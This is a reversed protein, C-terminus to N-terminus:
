LPLDHLQDEPATWTEDGDDAHAVENAQGTGAEGGSAGGTPNHQSLTDHLAAVSDDIHFALAMAGRASGPTLLDGPSVVAGGASALGSPNRGASLKSDLATDADAPTDSDDLALTTLSPRKAAGKGRSPSSQQTSDSHLSYAARRGASMRFPQPHAGGMVAALSQLAARAQSAEAKVAGEQLALVAQAHKPNATMAYSALGTRAKIVEWTLMLLRDKSCRESIPTKASYKRVRSIATKHRPVDKILCFGKASQEPSLTYKTNLPLRHEYTQTFPPNLKANVERIGTCCAGCTLIYVFRALLASAVARVVVFLLLGGALSLFLVFMPFVNQRLVKPALGIPDLHEVSAVAAQYRDQVGVGGADGLLVPDSEVTADDGYFWIAFASHAMLAFPMINFALQAMSANLPPPQAYFTSLLFVDVLYTTLLSVAAVPLLLPIGSSYLLTVVVTNMVHPVRSEVEFEPAKYFDNLERQLIASKSCCRRKCPYVCCYKGLPLAHPAAINIIMTLTVAAGATSYWGPSFSSYAGRLVGLPLSEAGPIRAHVLLVILGTNLFLALFLSTHLEQKTARWLVSKLSTNILVVGAAAVFILVQALVFSSALEQCTAEQEVATRFDSWSTDESMLLSRMRQLCYCGIVARVPFTQSASPEAGLVQEATGRVQFIESLPAPNVGWAVTPAQVTCVEQSPLTGRFAEQQQQALVIGILSAALFLLMCLNALSIRLAREWGPVELNEWIVDTPAPARHVILPHKNEFWLPPAQCTRHCRCAAVVPFYWRQSVQYDYLCRRWSEENNFVVFAGIVSSNISRAHKLDLKHLRSEIAALRQRTAALRAERPGSRVYCLQLPGGACSRDVHVEVAGCCLGGTAGPVWKPNSYVKVAARAQMQRDRLKQLAKYRRLLGGNPHVLTVEAVWSRLYEQQGTNAANLVPCTAWDQWSVPASADSRIDELAAEAGCCGGGRRPVRSRARVWEKFLTSALKPGKFQRRMMIKRNCFCEACSSEYVWDPKRLNYLRDFHARVQQETADEPLGMVHVSYDSMNVDGDTLKRDIDHMRWLWWLM